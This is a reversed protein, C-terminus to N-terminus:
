YLDAMLNNIKESIGNKLLPTLHTYVLTSKICKHGLLEQIIRIDTGEELLHTAYSHRLTHISTNKSIGVEKLSKKLAAQISSDSLHKTFGSTDATGRVPAPFVFLPNRHTRYHDRLLQLTSKPLPVYRDRGGKAKQIHILMRKSDVQIVKLSVAEHLRLGCSYILTLCARHRITRINTLVAKVEERSLVVPLKIERELRIINLVEFKQKLTKEFMFKIGCLAITLTPRAYKRENKLYLFYHRLEENTIQEPSKNFYEIIRKAPYLYAKRTKPSYGSLQMDQEMRIIVQTDM